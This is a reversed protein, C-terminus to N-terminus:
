AVFLNFDFMPIYFKNRKNLIDVIKSCDKSVLASCRPDGNEDLKTGGYHAPLESADIYKLLTERYNGILM